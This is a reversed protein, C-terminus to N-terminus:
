GAAQKARERARERARGAVVARLYSRYWAIELDGVGHLRAFASLRDDVSDVGGAALSDGISGGDAGTADLSLPKERKPQEYSHDKWTWRNRGLHLRLWDTCRNGLNRTVWASFPVGSSKDYRLSARWTETILYQVLSEFDAQQLRIQKKTVWTRAFRTVTDEVDPMDYLTLKGLV